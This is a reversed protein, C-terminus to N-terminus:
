DPKPNDSASKESPSSDTSTPTSSSSNSPPSTSPTSDTSNPLKPMSPFNKKLDGMIKNAEILILAAMSESITRQLLSSLEKALLSRWNKGGQRTCRTVLEYIDYAELTGLINGQTDRFEMVTPTEPITIQM